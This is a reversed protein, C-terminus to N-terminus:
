KKQRRGVLGTLHPGAGFVHDQHIWGSRKADLKLKLWPGRRDIVRLVSTAVCVYAVRARPEPRRRLRAAEDTVMVYPGPALAGAHVWGKKGRWDGVYYHEGRQIIVKVPAHKPLQFVVRAPPSPASMASVGDRAAVLIRGGTDATPQGAKLRALNVAAEQDKPDLARARALCQRAQARRGRRMYLLGLDRWSAARDPNLALDRRYEKVARDYQRREALRRALRYHYHTTRQVLTPGYRTLIPGGVQGIKLRSVTKALNPALRSLEFCGLLGGREIPGATSSKKVLEVFHEGQQLRRRIQRLASANKAVLVRLCVQNLDKVVVLPGAPAPAPDQSLSPLQAPM